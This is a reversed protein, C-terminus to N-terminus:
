QRLFNLLDKFRQMIHVFLWMMLGNSISTFCLQRSGFLDGFKRSRAGLYRRLLIPIPRLAIPGMCWLLLSVAM